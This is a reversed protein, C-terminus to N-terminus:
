SRRGGEGKGFFSSLKEGSNRALTVYIRDAPQFTFGPAPIFATHERVVSVVRLEGPVEFDALRLDVMAATAVLEIMEVEGDGFQYESHLEPNEVMRLLRHSVWEVGSATRIGVERYLEARRPDSIRALVSPVDYTERAVRASVINSNDGRTVAVYADASGIRATELTERDFVEGVIKQGRIDGIEAFADPNRDIVAISHGERELVHALYRGVRGYGGIVVHM